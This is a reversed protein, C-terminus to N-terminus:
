KNRYNKIKRVRKRTIVITPFYLLITVLKSNSNEIITQFSRNGAHCYSIYKVENKLKEILPLNENQLMNKELIFGNINKSALQLINNSLGDELYEGRYLTINICKFIGNKSMIMYNVGEPILKEKEFSKIISKRYIDTRVVFIKDGNTKNKSFYMESYSADQLKFPEGILKGEQDEKLYVYGIYKDLLSVGSKLLIEFFDDVFVDDSDLVVSFDGNLNLQFAEFLANTKGGNQKYVYTINLNTKEKWKEVIEKTNDSSGDDIIIWEFDSTHKSKSLNNYINPLCYGRNYTPTIISLLM